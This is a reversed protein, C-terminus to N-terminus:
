DMKQGWILYSGEFSDILQWNADFGMEQLAKQFTGPHHLYIPTRHIKSLFSSHIQTFPTKGVNLIFFRGSPRLLASLKLVSERLPFYVWAYASVFIDYSGIIKFFNGQLFQVRPHGNNRKAFQIMDRSLDVSTLSLEPFIGVLTRSLIGAGCGIEIGHNTIPSQHNPNNKGEANRVGFESNMMQILTNYSKWRWLGQPPFKFALEYLLPFRYYLSAPM